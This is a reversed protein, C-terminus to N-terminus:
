FHSFVAKSAYLYLNLGKSHNIEYPLSITIQRKISTFSLNSLDKYFSYIQDRFYNKTRATVVSNSEIILERILIYCCEMVDHGNM